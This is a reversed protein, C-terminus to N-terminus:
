DENVIKQWLVPMGYQFLETGGIWERSLIKKFRNGLWSVWDEHKMGEFGAVYPKYNYWLPSIGIPERSAESFGLRAYLMPWPINKAMPVMNGVLTSIGPINAHTTIAAAAFPAVLMAATLTQLIKFPSNVYVVLDPIITTTFGGERDFNHVVERVEIPGWMVTYNDYIFVIDHPKVSADGLIILEGDYMKQTKLILHGMGYNLAEDADNCNEEHVICNKWYLEDITDDAKVTRHRKWVRLASGLNDTWKVTVMNFFNTLDVRINNSIIHNNSTKFHYKRFTKVNIEDALPYSKGTSFGAGKQLSGEPHTEQYKKRQSPSNYATFFYPQDPLGFFLTARDDFPVVSAIYGPMRRTIDKIAEWSNEHYLKFQTCWHTYNLWNDGEAVFVNDDMPSDNLRWGRESANQHHNFGWRGFHKVNRRKLLSNIIQKPGWWLKTKQFVHEWFSYGIEELLEVGYGQAVFTIIDGYEVSVIKGTFTNELDSEYSHYGLKLWIRTGPRLMMKEFPKNEREAKPNLTEKASDAHTKALFDVSDLSGRFNTIEVVASDAANEKSKHITISKVSQYGYFDDFNRVQESDEEIILLKFTPFANYMRVYDNRISNDLQTRMYDMHKQSLMDYNISGSENSYTLIAKNQTDMAANLQDNLTSSITM